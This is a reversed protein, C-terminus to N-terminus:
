DAKIGNRNIFVAWYDRERKLSAAFEAPTDFIPILALERLRTAIAPSKMITNITASLKAAIQPPLGAPGVISFTTRATMGNVGAERHVAPNTPTQLGSPKLWTQLGGKTSWQLIANARPDSALLYGDAGGIWVPGECWEFGTDVIREIKASSDVLADFAPDFREIVPPQPPGAPAAGRGGAQAAPAQALATQAFAALGALSIGSELMSRRSLTNM